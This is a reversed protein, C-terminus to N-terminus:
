SDAEAAQNERIWTEADNAAKALELLESGSYSHSSKWEGDDTRYRREFTASLFSGKTSPNRWISARVRGCRIDHIPREGKGPEKMPPPQPEINEATTVEGEQLQRM